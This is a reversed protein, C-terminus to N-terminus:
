GGDTRKGWKYEVTLHYDRWENTTALYGFGDGSIHIMGDHVTFVKRPDKDKTDRVWPYLGSLDNGNFLQIKRKPVHPVAPDGGAIAAVLVMLALLGLSVRCPMILEPTVYYNINLGLNHTLSPVSPVVLMKKDRKCMETIKEKGTGITNSVGHFSAPGSGQRGNRDQVDNEARQPQDTATDVANEDTCKQAGRPVTGILDHAHQ